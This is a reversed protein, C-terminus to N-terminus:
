RNWDMVANIVDLSPMLEIPVYNLQEVWTEAQTEGFENLYANHSGQTKVADHIECLPLLAYHGILVKNHIFASGYMHDVISPPQRNCIACPQEKVWKMFKKEQANAARTSKKTAPRQM